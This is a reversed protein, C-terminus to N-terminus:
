WPIEQTLFAMPRNDPGDVFQGTPGDYWLRVSGLWNPRQGRQKEVILLGAPESPLRDERKDRWVIFINDTQDIMASAGRVGMIGPLSEDGQKRMHCVVHIHMNLAKAYATVRNFFIRQGEFDDSAVGMKMLSDIVFHTVGKQKAAYAAVALMRDARIMGQQDYLWIKGTAWEAVMRLAEDNTASNGVAMRVLDAFTEEPFEELSAICVKEGCKALHMCIQKLVTTKGHHTLGAWISVKGKRLRVHGSVKAWPLSIGEYDGVGALVLKTKEILSVPEIVKAFDEDTLLYQDWEVPTDVLLPEIFKLIPTM